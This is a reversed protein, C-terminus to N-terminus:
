QTEARSVGHEDSGTGITPSRRPTGPEDSGMDVAPLRRPSSEYQPPPASQSLVVEMILREVDVRMELTYEEGTHPWGANSLKWYFPESLGSRFRQSDMEAVTEIRDFGAERKWTKQGELMRLRCMQGLRHTAALERVMICKRLRWSTAQVESIIKRVDSEDISMKELDSSIFSFATYSANVQATTQTAKM